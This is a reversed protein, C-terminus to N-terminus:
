GSVEVRWFRSAVLYGLYGIPGLMLTFFLIPTTIVPPMRRKRAELYVFRGVMLDFALFHMWGVTVGEPTAFLPMVSALTPPSLLLPGSVLGPLILVLYVLAVPAAIWASAIVRQTWRWGPALMMLLWFPAVLAFSAEFLFAM